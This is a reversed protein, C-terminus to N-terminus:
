QVKLRTIENFSLARPENNNIFSGIGLMKVELEKGHMSPNVINYREGTQRTKSIRICDAILVIKPSIVLYQTIFHKM